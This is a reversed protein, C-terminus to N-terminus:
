PDAGGADKGLLYLLENAVQGHRRALDAVEDTISTRLNALLNPIATGLAPSGGSDPPPADPEPSGSLTGDSPADGPRGPLTFLLGYGHRGLLHGVDDLNHMVRRAQKLMEGRLDPPQEFARRLIELAMWYYHDGLSQLAGFESTPSQAVPAGQVRLYDSPKLDQLLDRAQKCRLWHDNGEDIILKVVEQVQERVDEGKKNTYGDPLEDLSVLIHTYLGSVDGQRYKQSPMEIAIFRDLAAPTLGELVLDIQQHILGGSGPPDSLATARSFVPDQDLLMLAENVWRFHRMEDVAINLIDKAVRSLPAEPANPPTKLSYHAYLFKVCLAHEVGALKQLQRIVTKCDWPDGIPVVPQPKYSDTEQDGVVVPLTEWRLIVEPQSMVGDMWGDWSVWPGSPPVEERKDRLFNLGPTGKAGTVIDPRSAAWYYCGCDTFDWQWPSCLSRTLTGPEATQLDIVGEEDLYRAREGTLVAFQLSGDSARFINLHQEVPGAAPPSNMAQLQLLAAQLWVQLVSTDVKLKEPRVGVIVAIPGPELDHVKRLVDYGDLGYVDAVTPKGPQDGFIGRIYWLFFEGDKASLSGAGSHDKDLEKEEELWPSRVAALRAGVGFQFDFLLGPFFGRDLNRQDFELGPHSNDAGSEPRSTVPNGRVVYDARATLNRPFLKMDKPKTGQQM